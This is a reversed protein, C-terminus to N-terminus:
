FITSTVMLYSRRVDSIGSRKAAIRAYAELNVAQYTMLKEFHPESWNTTASYQYIGGWVPDILAAQKQLSFVARQLANTDGHAARRLEFEINAGLPAKQRRGWGGEDPDYWDDMEMTLRAGLWGLADVPASPDAAIKGTQAAAENISALIPKFEEPSLYGRFKGLEAADASFIVTAPWGWAGYREALDPRNDIDVRITVFRDNLIKGIEPDAYTTEDM